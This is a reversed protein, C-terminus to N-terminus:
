YIFKINRIELAPIFIIIDVNALFVKKITIYNM